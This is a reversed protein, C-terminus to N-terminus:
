ERHQMVDARRFQLILKKAFGVAHQLRASDQGSNVAQWGNEHTSKVKAVRQREHRRIRQGSAERRGSECIRLHVNARTTEPKGRTTWKIRRVSRARM